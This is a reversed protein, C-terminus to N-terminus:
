ASATNKAPKKRRGLAIAAMLSNNLVLYIPYILGSAQVRQVALLALLSGIAALAFAQWTEEFPREWCHKITPLAAVFDITVTAVLAVLASDFALWLALGLLAALQCVIDFKAFKRDGYYLGLAAVVAAGVTSALTIAASPWQGASIAAATAIGTLLAWNFWTVVRPKTRRKVVDIIYPAIAVVTLVAGAAILFDRM